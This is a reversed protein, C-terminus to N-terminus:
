NIDLAIQAQAGNALLLIIIEMNNKYVASFLPSTQFGTQHSAINPDAGLRLLHEVLKPHEWHAASTLATM